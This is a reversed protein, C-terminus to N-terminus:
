LVTGLYLFDNTYKSLVIQQQNEAPQYRRPSSLRRCWLPVSSPHILNRLQRNLKNEADEDLVDILNISPVPTTNDLYSTTLILATEKLYGEESSARELTSVLEGYNLVILKIDPNFYKECIM